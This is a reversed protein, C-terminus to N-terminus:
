FAERFTLVQSPLRKVLVDGTETDFDIVRGLSGGVASATVELGHAVLMKRATEVNRRGVAYGSRGDARSMADAGGFVKIELERKSAGRDTFIRLMLEIATDVYRLAERQPM